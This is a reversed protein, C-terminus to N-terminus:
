AGSINQNQKKSIDPISSELIGPKIVGEGGVWGGGGGQVYNNPTGRVVRGSSGQILFFDLSRFVEIVFDYAGNM